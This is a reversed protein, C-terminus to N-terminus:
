EDYHIITDAKLYLQREYQDLVMEIRRRGGTPQNYKDYINYVPYTWVIRDEKLWVSDRGSYGEMAHIVNSDFTVPAISDQNMSAFAFLENSQDSMKSKSFIYIEPFEDGNLDKMVVDQINGNVFRILTDDKMRMDKSWIKFINVMKDNPSAVYFKVDDWRFAKVYGDENNRILKGEPDRNYNGSCGIIWIALLVMRAQQINFYQGIKIKM